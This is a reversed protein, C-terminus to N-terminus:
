KRVVIQYRKLDLPPIIGTKPHSSFHNRPVPEKIKSLSNSPYSPRMNPFFPPTKIPHKYGSMHYPQNHKPTLFPKNPPYNIPLTLGTFSTIIKNVMTEEDQINKNEFPDFETEMKNLIEQPINSM